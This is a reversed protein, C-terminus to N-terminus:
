IAIMWLLKIIKQVPKKTIDENRYIDYKGKELIKFHESTNLNIVSISNNTNTNAIDIPYRKSTNSIVNVFPSVFSSHM